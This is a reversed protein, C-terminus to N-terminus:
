QSKSVLTFDKDRSEYRQRQKNWFLEEAGWNDWDLVLKDGDKSYSGKDVGPREMRGTSYFEMPGNWCPHKGYFVKDRFVEIPKERLFVMLGHTSDREVSEKAVYGMQELISRVKSEDCKGAMIMGKRNFRHLNNLFIHEYGQPIHEWVDISLSWDYTEKPSQPETLDATWAEGDTLEDTKPNGDCGASVIGAERFAKLYRGDGCGLDVVSGNEQKLFEILHNCLSQDVPKEKLKRGVIYGRPHKEGDSLLSSIRIWRFPILDEDSYGVSAPGFWRDPVIVRQNVPNALWAGWWSFTSNSLVHHACLSMLAMDEYASQGTIVQIRNDRTTLNEQCWRPDDSFCLVHKAEVSEEMLQISRLYYEAPQIPHYQPKSLYDGRRVHIAIPRTALIGGFKEQLKRRVNEDMAFMDRILETCHEFYRESQMFGVIRINYTPFEFIRDNFGINKADGIELFDQTPERVPLRAFAMRHHAIVSESFIPEHGCKASVGLAAAIEFLQNGLRGKLNCTVKPTMGKLEADHAVWPWQSAHSTIIQNNATPRLNEKGYPVFRMDIHLKVGAERLCQGVLLDEAGTLHKELRDVVLRAARRSLFYGAGGSGYDVGPSREAGIYDRGAPDFSALRDACIYTDDDCKFLYDWDDRELAWKCFWKTKQPLSPYDDPCPLLLLDDLQKPTQVCDDAGVLFVTEVNRHEAFDAGWTKRCRQRRQEMNWRSLAGILIKVRPTKRRNMPAESKDATSAWRRIPNLFGDNELTKRNAEAVARQMAKVTEAPIERLLQPIGEIADKNEPVQIICKSWDMGKPLALNDAILVPIAGAQISEWFRITGLGTGRPCLSFVSREMIDEYQRQRAQQDAGGFHWADRLEIRGGPLNKLLPRTWHTGSAGVFSFDIDKNPHPHVSAVPQHSFGKIQVGKIVQKKTSAHPTFLVDIGLKQCYDVAKEYDIHQCVTFSPGSFRELQSVDLKLQQNIIPAWPIAYYAVPEHLLLQRLLEYSHKETVVPDNDWLEPQYEIIRMAPKGSRVFCYVDGNESAVEYGASALRGFTQDIMDTSLWQRHFEVLIQQPFICSDLMDDLVDCEAGEIDLKLVDIHVHERESMVSQLRQMPLAVSRNGIRNRSCSVHNPNAPLYHEVTASRDLIGISAFHFGAEEAMNEKVWDISRPTPDFGFVTAGHQEIVSRDFSADEGIGVSYVISKRSLMEGNLYYGGYDNGHFELGQRNEIEKRVAALQATKKDVGVIYNAHHTLIRKPPHIPQGPNWPRRRSWFLDVPLASMRLRNRKWVRNMAEQDNTQPEQHMIELVEDWFDKVAQNSRCAFQGACLQDAEAEQQAVIDNTKLKTRLTHEVPGFFQIDVDVFFFADGWTEEIAQRIVQVKDLMTSNWGGHMFNGSRCKQEGSVCVLDLESPLYRKLWDDLLSQHSPTFFTYTKM